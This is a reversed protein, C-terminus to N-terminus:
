DNKFMEAYKRDKGKNFNPQEYKRANTPTNAIYREPQDYNIDDFKETRDYIGNNINEM